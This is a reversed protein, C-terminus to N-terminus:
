EWIGEIRGPAFIALDRLRGKYGTLLRAVREEMGTRNALREVAPVVLLDLGDFQRLVIKTLMGVGVGLMYGLMNELDRPYTRIHLKQAIEVAKNMAKELSAPDELNYYKANLGGKILRVNEIWAEIRREQSTEKKAGNVIITALLSRVTIPFEVDQVNGLQRMSPLVTSRLPHHITQLGDERSTYHHFPGRILAALVYADRMDRFDDNDPQRKAFKAVVSPMCSLEHVATLRDVSLNLVRSIEPIFQPNFLGGLRMAHEPWAQTIAWDLWVEYDTQDSKLREFANRFRVLNRNVWQKTLKVATRETKPELRYLGVFGSEIARGMLLAYPGSALGTTGPAPAVNFHHSDILLSTVEVASQLTWRSSNSPQATIRVIEYLSASDIFGISM